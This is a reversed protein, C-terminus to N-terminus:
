QPVKIEGTCKDKYTQTYTQGMANKAFLSMVIIMLGFVWKKM